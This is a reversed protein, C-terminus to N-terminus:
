EAKLQCIEVGSQSLLHIRVLREIRIIKLEGVPRKTDLNGPPNDRAYHFQLCRLLSIMKVLCTFLYM